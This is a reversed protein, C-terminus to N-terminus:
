RGARRRGAIVAPILALILGVAFLVVPWYRPQNWEARLSARVLPDVRRYKLLNYAIGHPKVNHYWQHFLSYGESHFSPVWPCDRELLKVMRRIIAKRQEGEAGENSMGKMRAFLADYRPNKYNAVNVGPRENASLLLFLFNEPDPYDAIWGYRIIQFNGEDAKRQQTSWDNTIVHLRIGLSEFQRVLWRDSQRGAASTASTDYNLTLPRGEPTLGRPYGAEALLRKAKKLDFQRYPNRYTPDYGFIGPPLPSQAVEGLGNEFLELYEATNLACSVAQRLKRNRGVIPDDMNFAFYYTDLGKTRELRIGRDRMRESLRGSETIVRDFAERPVGSADMYGELFLNWRPISEKVMTFVCVETLPLPKGADVLLGRERDGPGGEPPYTEPRFNPNRALVIRQGKRYDRLVYAGAGVPHDKFREGYYEVAEHPVPATFHMAMWYLFQPYKETLSVQFTTDNVRRLGSVPRSLDAHRPQGAAAQRRVLKRNDEYFDALGAIKETFLSVVPCSITPDALRKLAYLVDDSTITRGKGGTAQFCPDNQFRLGSKLHFTYRYAERRVPHGEADRGHYVYVEREPMGAALAPEVQYPRKLYAYQYLSECIPDLITASLTDYAVAPDLSKPDEGISGYYVSRNSDGPPYPNNSCGVLCVAAPLWFAAALLCFAEAHVLRRM